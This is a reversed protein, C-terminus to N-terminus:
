LSLVIHTSLPSCAHTYTGPNLVGGAHGDMTVRARGQFDEPIQRSV